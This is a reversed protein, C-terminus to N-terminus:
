LNLISLIAKLELLFDIGGFVIWLVAISFIVYKLKNKKHFKLFFFLVTLGFFFFHLIFVVVKLIDKENM